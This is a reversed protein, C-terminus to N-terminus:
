RLEHCIEPSNFWNDFYLTRHQDLLNCKQLLSMVTRTTITCHPDLTSVDALLENSARGTYVSFGCIYGTDPESVMFLKIHFRNPKSKSYQLFKVRGKFSLPPFLATDTESELCWYLLTAFVQSGSIVLNSLRRSVFIKSKGDLFLFVSELVSVSIARFSSWRLLLLLNM